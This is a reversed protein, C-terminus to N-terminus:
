FKWGITLAACFLSRVCDFTPAEYWKDQIYQDTTQNYKFTCYDGYPSYKQVPYVTNKVALDAYFARASHYGVGLSFSHTNEKFYESSMPLTKQVLSYLDYGAVYDNYYVTELGDSYFKEPCTSLTFGGRVSIFPTVNAELGVRFEHRCGAFHKMSQNTQDFVSSFTYQDAEWEQFEITSYDTLEYDFSLIGYYGLTYALGLTLSQPTIYTYTYNGMESQASNYDGNLYSVAGAHQWQEEVTMITPTQYAAALRLGGPLVALAGIKAYVGSMQSSYSYQYSASNFFTSVSAGDNYTLNIPFYPEPSLASETTTERASYGGVPLGLNFGWFFRDNHNFSFNFLIDDRYGERVVNYRQGLTGPIGTIEDNELGETCGVYRNGATGYDCILGANYAMIVDWFSSGLEGYADFSGLTSAPIGAAASAIEGFHSASNSTGVCSSSYSYDNVRNSLFGFTMSKLGSDFLPYNFSVGLNTFTPNGDSVAPTITAQCYNAVAGGAPNIGFSGMDGGVAAVANGMGMTRATGFYNTEAFNFADYLNQAGATSAAAALIGIIVLTKKM